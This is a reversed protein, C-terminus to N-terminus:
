TMLWEPRLFPFSCLRTSVHWFKIRAPYSCSVSLGCTRETWQCGRPSSLARRSDSRYIELDWLRRILTSSALSLASYLVGFRRAKKKRTRWSRVQVSTFGMLFFSLVFSRVFPCTLFVLAPLVCGDIRGSGAAGWWAFDFPTPTLFLGLYSPTCFLRPITHSFHYQSELAFHM